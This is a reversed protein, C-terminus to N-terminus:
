QEGHRIKMHNELNVVHEGCKACQQKKGSIMYHTDRPKEIM